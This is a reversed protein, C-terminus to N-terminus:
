KDAIIILLDKVDNLVDLKISIDSLPLNINATNTTAITTTHIRIQDCHGRIIDLYDKIAANDLQVVAFNASNEARAEQIQLRVTDIAEDLLSVDDVLSQLKADVATLTQIYSVFANQFGTIADIIRELPLAKTPYDYLARIPTQSYNSYSQRLTYLYDKMSPLWVYIPETYTQVNQMFTAIANLIVRVTDM